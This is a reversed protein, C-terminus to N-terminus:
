RSLSTFFKTMQSTSSIFVNDRIASTFVVNQVDSDDSLLIANLSSTRLHTDLLKKAAIDGDNRKRRDPLMKELMRSEEFVETAHISIKHAQNVRIWEVVTRAEPQDLHKTLDFYVTDLIQVQAERLLAGPTDTVAFALLPRADAVIVVSPTRFASAIDLNNNM